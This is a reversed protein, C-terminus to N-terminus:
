IGAIAKRIQNIPQHYYGKSEEFLRDMEKQARNSLKKGELEMISNDYLVILRDIDKTRPTEPISRFFDTMVPEMGFYSCANIISMINRDTVKDPNEKEMTDIINLIQQRVKRM